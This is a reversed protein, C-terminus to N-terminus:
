TALASVYLCVCLDARQNFGPELRALSRGVLEGNAMMQTRWLSGFQLTTLRRRRCRRSIFNDCISSLRSFHKYHSRTTSSYTHEACGGGISLLPPAEVFLECASKRATQKHTNTHTHARRNTHINLRMHSMETQCSMQLLLAVVLSSCPLRVISTSAVIPEAQM